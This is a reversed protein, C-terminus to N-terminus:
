DYTTSTTGSSTSSSPTLPKSTFRYVGFAILGATIALGWSYGSARLFGRYFEGVNLKPFEKGSEEIHTRPKFFSESTKGEDLRFSNPDRSVNLKEYIKEKAKEQNKHHEDILHEKTEELKGINEVVKTKLEELVKEKSICYTSMKDLSMVVVRAKTYNNNNKPCHAGM